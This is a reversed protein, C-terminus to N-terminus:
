IGAESAAHAFWNAASEVTMAAPRGALWTDYGPRMREAQARRSNSRPQPLQASPRWRFAQGTANPLAFPLRLGDELAILALQHGCRDRAYRLGALVRGSEDANRAQRYDARSRWYTIVRTDTLEEFSDDASVTWWLTETLPAFVHPPAAGPQSAALLRQRAGDFGSLAAHLMQKQDHILPNNM